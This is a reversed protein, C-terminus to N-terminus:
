GAKKPPIACVYKLLVFAAVGALIGLSDHLLDTLDPVRQPVFAQHLEDFVAWASSLVLAPVINSFSPAGPATAHLARILLFSFLAYEPYHLYNSDFDFPVPPSSMHSFIFILILYIIM